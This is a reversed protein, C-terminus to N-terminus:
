TKKMNFYIGVLNIVQSSKTLVLELVQPRNKLRLEANRDEQGLLNDGRGPV